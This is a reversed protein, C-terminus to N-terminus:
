SRQSASERAGPMPNSFSRWSPYSGLRRRRSMHFALGLTMAVLQIYSPVMVMMDYAFENIQEIALRYIHGSLAIIQAGGIWLPYVRNAHLAVTFTCVLMTADIGLHVLDTHRWLIPAATVAHYIRDSAVMACLLGSLIREPAAARRVLSCLFLLAYCIAQIHSKLHLFLISWYPDPM